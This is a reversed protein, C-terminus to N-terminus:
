AHNPSSRQPPDRVPPAPEDPVAAVPVGHAGGVPEALPPRGAQDDPLVVAPVVGIISSRFVVALTYYMIFYRGDKTAELQLGIHSQLSILRSVLFRGQAITYSVERSISAFSFYCHQDM